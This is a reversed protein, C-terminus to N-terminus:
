FGLFVMTFDITKALDCKEVQYGSFWMEPWNPVGLDELIQELVGGLPALNAGLGGGLAGLHGGQRVGPRGVRLGLQGLILEPPSM